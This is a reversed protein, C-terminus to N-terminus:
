VCFWRPRTRLTLKIHPKKEIEQLLEESTKTLQELVGELRLLLKPKVQPQLKIKNM